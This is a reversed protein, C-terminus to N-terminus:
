SFRYIYSNTERLAFGTRLYLRNAAQRAPNSSLMVNAAGKARATNLCRRILGEGVGRGRAATDVVVDEIIARIGTPVCYVSVCAMGIIHDRGDRAVVLTSSESEVLRRLEGEGPPLKVTLQPVLRSMADLLGPTVTTVEEILM